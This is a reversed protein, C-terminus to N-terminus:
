LHYIKLNYRKILALIDYEDNLTMVNMFILASGLADSLADHHNLPIDLHACVTNLKHNSLGPYCKRSLEVSDICYTRPKAIAYLRYLSQLVGM